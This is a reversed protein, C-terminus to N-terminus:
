KENKEEFAVLKIGGKIVKSLLFIKNPLAMIIIFFANFIIRM